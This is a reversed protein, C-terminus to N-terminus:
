KEIGGTIGNGSDEVRIIILSNSKTVSVILITENM